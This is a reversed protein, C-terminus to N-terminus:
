NNLPVIIVRQKLNLYLSLIRYCIVFCSVNNSLIPLLFFFLCLFHNYLSFSFLVTYGGNSNKIVLQLDQFSAHAVSKLSLCISQWVYLNASLCKQGVMKLNIVIGYAHGLDRAIKTKVWWAFHNQPFWLDSLHVSVSLCIPMSASLCIFSCLRKHLNCRM